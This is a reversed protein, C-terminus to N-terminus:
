KFLDKTKQALKQYDAQAKLNPINQLHEWARILSAISQKWPLIPLTKVAWKAMEDVSTAIKKTFSNSKFAVFVLTWMLMAAILNVIIWAIYSAINKFDWMNTNKGDKSNYNSKVKIVGALEYEDKWVKNVDIKKLINDSKKEWSINPMMASLSQMFIFWLTLMFVVYAPQFILAIINSLKEKVKSDFIWIIPLWFLFPSFPIVMWLVMIRIFLIVVLLLFPIILILFLIIKIVYMWFTPNLKNTNDLDFVMTMYRFMSFLMWTSAYKMDKSTIWWKIKQTKGDKSVVLKFFWWNFEICPPNTYKWDALICFHYDKWNIKTNLTPKKTDADIEVPLIMVANKDIKKHKEMISMFQMWFNGAMVTFITSLDLLVAFLFWSMNVVISAFLLKPFIKPLSLKSNSKVIYMFISVIFVVWIFYNMGIRSMQWIKWLVTDIGFSSGYVFTNSLLKWALILFPRIVLMCFDLLKQLSNLIKQMLDTWSSVVEAWTTWSWFSVWVIITFFLLLLALIKYKKM